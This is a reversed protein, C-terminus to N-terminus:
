RGKVHIGLGGAENWTDITDQRDDYLVDGPKMYNIKDGAGKTFIADRVQFNDIHKLLWTRKNAVAKDWFDSGAWKKPVASLFKVNDLSNYMYNIYPLLHLPKLDRYVTEINEDLVKWPSDNYRWDDETVEPLVSTIWGEFDAIVGDMDIYIMM